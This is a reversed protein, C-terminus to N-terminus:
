LDLGKSEVSKKRTKRKHKLTVQLSVEYTADDRNAIDDYSQGLFGANQIHDVFMKAKDNSWEFQLRADM